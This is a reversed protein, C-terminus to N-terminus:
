QDRELEVLSTIQLEHFCAALMVGTRNESAPSLRDFMHKSFSCGIPPYAPSEDIARISRRPIRQSKIKTQRTTSTMHINTRAQGRLLELKVSRTPDPFRSRRNGFATAPIPLDTIQPLQAEFEPRSEPKRRHSSFTPPTYTSDQNTDVM